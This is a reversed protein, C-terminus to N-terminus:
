GEPKPEPENAGSERLRAAEWKLLHSLPYLIKGGAKIFPPGGAKGHGNRWNAITILATGGFRESLQKPTLYTEYIAGDNM